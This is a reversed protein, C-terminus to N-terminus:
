RWGDDIGTAGAAVTGAGKINRGGTRQHGRCRPAPYGFVAITGDGTFGATGIHKLCGANSQIQRWRLHSGTYIMDSNSEQKSGPMVTGHFM